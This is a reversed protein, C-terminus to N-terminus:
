WFLMCEHIIKPEKHFSTHLESNFESRKKSLKSRPRERATDQSVRIDSSTFKPRKLPGQVREQSSRFCSALQKFAEMDAPTKELSM